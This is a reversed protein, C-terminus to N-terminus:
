GGVVEGVSLNFVVMNTGKPERTWVYLMMVFTIKVQNM